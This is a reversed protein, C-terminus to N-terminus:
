KVWVEVRRNLQRRELTDNCAIPALPGYGKAVLATAPIRGGSAALVATRVQSARRASISANPAFKGEGDTFGILIVTRGALEAGQMFEALRMVDLRSAPALDFSGSTFRFTLSLRKAGKLEALLKRMEEMDFGQAPANLAFAMRETQEEFPLMDIREDVIDQEAIVAQADRSLAYRLLGRAAPQSLVGGTYVYLSRSLPYEGAKVAFAAPRTILGCVGELNIRKASRQFAFSVVGIGNPDRSVADAVDSESALDKASSVLALSRPKLIASTLADEASSHRAASYIAIKGGAVGAETWNSIQGSFIKAM